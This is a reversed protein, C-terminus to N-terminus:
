TNFFDGNRRRPKARKPSGEKFTYYNKNPIFQSKRRYFFELREEQHETLAQNKDFDASVVQLFYEEDKSLIYKNLGSLVWELRQKDM